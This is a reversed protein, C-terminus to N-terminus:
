MRRLVEGSGDMCAMIVSDLWDVLFVYTIQIMRRGEDDTLM